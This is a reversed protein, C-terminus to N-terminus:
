RATESDEAYMVHSKHKCEKLATRPHQLHYVFEATSPFILMGHAYIPGAAYRKEASIGTKLLAMTHRHHDIVYFEDLLKPLEQSNISGPACDKLLKEYLLTQLRRGDHVHPPHGLGEKGNFEITLPVVVYRHTLRTVLFRRTKSWSKQKDEKGEKINKLGPSGIQRGCYGTGWRTARVPTGNTTTSPFNAGETRTDGKPPGNDTPTSTTGGGGGLGEVAPVKNGVEDDDDARYKNMSKWHGRKKSGTRTASLDESVLKSKEKKRRKRRSDRLGFSPPSVRPRWKELGAQPMAVVAWCILPRRVWTGHIPPPDARHREDRAGNQTLPTFTARQFFRGDKFQPPHGPHGWPRDGDSHLVLDIHRMPRKWFAQMSIMRLSPRESRRRRLGAPLTEKPDSLAGIGSDKLRLHILGPLDSAMKLDQSATKSITTIADRTIQSASELKQPSIRSCHQHLDTTTGKKKELHALYANIRGFAKWICFVEDVVGVSPIQKDELLHAK